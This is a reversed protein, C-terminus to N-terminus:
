TSSIEFLHPQHAELAVYLGPWIMEGGPRDYHRGEYLDHFTYNKGAEFTEPPLPIRGYARTPSLNVIILYSLFLGVAPPLRPTWYLAVLSENSADGWGPSHVPIVRCDGSHFIPDQLVGLVKEYFLAIEVDERERPRRGLQVPLKVRHGELQGEHILRLGASFFTAVAASRSYAGGFAVVAREEDHNETFRLCADQFHADAQLHSRVGGFDKKKLRDYLTKDYTFHFGEQQLPWELNWYSEAIFLTTPLRQLVAPIAESWFSRRVPNSGLRAGWVQELVDPLILMAMDCRVGDCQSCIDFLKQKMAERAAPQAYNIQATDTWGDFYPDRGHAIIHGAATTFYNHPERAIDEASGHVFLDPRDTVFHHDRSTHNSVFDLILGMGYRQLRQRLSALAERGGLTASVQYTSIAYPSGIVDEPSVDPLAIAYDNLLGEHMRAIAVPQPGVTWVGMLWVAHFGQSALRDIEEEPIQDLALARGAKASLEALWVRTNIEYVVPYKPWQM